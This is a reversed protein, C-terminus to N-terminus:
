KTKLVKITQSSGEVRLFYMGDRLHGINVPMNGKTVKVQMVLQGLHNRISVIKGTLEGATGGDITIFTTAPNPYVKISIEAIAAPEEIPRTTPPTTVPTGTLAKSSLLSYRAAGPEFLSRMKNRQGLTFLNLCADDTFDMYNSYMNGYPNNECTVVVGTPCNRTAGRQPPTDDIHDDGCAADGWIHRLGLWHGIEHTTTRGKNYPAGVPGVTGFAGPTIAVGDVAKDCGLVSAYGLLGGALSGVWINLYNDTDWADAGGKSSFKIRDDLGYMLISTSKRTIGTTAKGFPDIKALEFEILCDAALHKFVAPVNITDSNLKRFDKNLVDIQSKIQADSINQSPTNYLVHVVVPIKIVAPMPSGTGNLMIDSKSYADLAAMKQALLPDAQLQQQQYEYSACNRQATVALCTLLMLYALVFHKM